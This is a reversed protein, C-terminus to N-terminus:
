RDLTRNVDPDNGSFLREDFKFRLRLYAGRSTYESGTLDHDRFGTWNYGASLWLNSTLLYGIEAGAANQSNLRPSWLRYALASM